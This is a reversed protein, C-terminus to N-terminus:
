CIGRGFPYAMAGRPRHPIGWLQSIPYCRPLSESQGRVKQFLSSGLFPNYFQHQFSFFISLFRVEKYGWGPNGDDEWHDYDKRNGRVYLMYNLVSSGGVVKGRPWNCRQNTHGLCARGPQPETTYKWDMRGLQLYAALAPVDSIETEHGGAELIFFCCKNEM